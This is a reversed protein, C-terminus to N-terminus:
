TFLFACVDSLSVVAEVHQTGAEVVLLRRVGPISLRDVATRLSEKRSIVCARTMSNMSGEGFNQMHDAANKAAAASHALTLAQAVTVEDWNLQSYTKGRALAIIDSRAYIDLLSGQDDLVPLASVRAELLLQLAETLPTHLKLALIQRPEPLKWPADASTERPVAWTGVPLRDLPQSLLPLSATSARFHRNLCALIGSLTALHLLLQGEPQSDPEGSLLPVLAVRMQVLLSAVKQLTDEPKVYVLNRPGRTEVLSEHQWELITHADMDGESLMHNQKSTSRLKRLIHIFDGASIMGTIAYKTGDWVPAAPIGQEYLAHFAQRVPLSADLLVVKGSEPILEYATHTHLFEMVRKKTIDMEEALNLPQVIGTTEETGQLSVGYTEEGGQERELRERASAQQQQEASPSNERVRDRVDALMGAKVCCCIWPKMRGHRIM